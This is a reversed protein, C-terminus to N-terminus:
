VALLEPYGPMRMHDLVHPIPTGWWYGFNLYTQQDLTQNKIIVIRYESLADALTKMLDSNLPQSLDVNWINAGHPANVIPKIEIM